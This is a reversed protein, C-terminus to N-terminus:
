YAAHAKPAAEACLRGAPHSPLITIAPPPRALLRIPALRREALLIFFLLAYGAL